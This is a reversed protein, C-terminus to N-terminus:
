IIRDGSQPLLQICGTYEQSEGTDHSALKIQLLEEKVLFLEEKLGEAQKLFFNNILM